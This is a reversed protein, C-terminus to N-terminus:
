IIAILVNCVRTAQMPHQDCAIYACNDILHLAAISGCVEKGRATLPTKHHSTSSNLGNAHCCWRHKLPAASVYISRSMLLDLSFDVRNHFKTPEEGATRTIIAYVTNINWDFNDPFCAIFNISNYIQNSLIKSFKLSPIKKRCIISCYFKLFDSFFM